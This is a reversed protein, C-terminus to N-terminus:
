PRAPGHWRLYLHDVHRGAASRRRFLTHRALKMGGQVSPEIPSAFDADDAFIVRLDILTFQRSFAERTIVDNIVSLALASVRRRLPDPFRPDYVSCVATPLKRSEAADLMRVYAEKFRDQVKALKTLVEGVSRATADLIASEGLADNGGASIVLHTASAPLGDLQRPVSSSFAGDVALRTVEWDKPALMRLQEAVDPGHGVYAQNDIVSDGLVAIHTTREESSGNEALVGAAGALV